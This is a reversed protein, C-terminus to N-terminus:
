NNLKKKCFNFILWEELQGILVLNSATGTITGSGGINAAFCVSILLGKAMKLEAPSFIDEM